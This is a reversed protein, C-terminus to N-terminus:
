TLAIKMDGEAMLKGNCFVKANVLTVNFVVSVISVKTVLTDGVRPSDFFQMNKIGGIVGIKVPENNLLGLYGIRAACTQAINEMMGSETMVDGSRFINDEKFTLESTAGDDDCETLRDVMVFPRRQPILDSIDFDNINMM